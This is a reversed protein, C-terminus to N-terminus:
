RHAFLFNFIRVEFLPQWECRMLQPLVLATEGVWLSKVESWQRTNAVDRKEDFHRSQLAALLSGTGPFFYARCAPALLRELVPEVERRRCALLRNLGSLSLERLAFRDSVSGALMGATTGTANVMALLVVVMSLTNVTSLGEKELVQTDNLSKVLMDAYVLCDTYAKRTWRDSIIRPLVGCVEVAFSVNGKMLALCIEIVNDLEKENGTELREVLQRGLTSMPDDPSSPHACIPELLPQLISVVTPIQGANQVAADLLRVVTKQGNQLGLLLFEITEQALLVAKNLAEVFVAEFDQSEFWDGHGFEAVLWALLTPWTDLELQRCLGLLFIKHHQQIGRGGPSGLEILARILSQILELSPEILGSNDTLLQVCDVDILAEGLFSAM